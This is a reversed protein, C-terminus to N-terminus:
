SDTNLMYPPSKNGALFAAYLIDGRSNDRQQRRFKEEKQM